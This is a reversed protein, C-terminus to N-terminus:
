KQWMGKNNSKVRKEIALFEGKLRYEARRYTSAFGKEILTRNVMEGNSLSLYALLRGYSDYRETDIELFVQQGKTKDIVFTKAKRAIQRLREASIGYRKVYYDDRYSATTEPTDIGLLRVKGVGEVKVTDGDYVWTVVGSLTEATALNVLPVILCFLCIFIIWRGKKYNFYM